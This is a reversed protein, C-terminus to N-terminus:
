VPRLFLLISCAHAPQISLGAHRAPSPCSSQPHGSTQMKMDTQFRHSCPPHSPRHFRLSSPLPQYAAPYASSGRNKYSRHSPQVPPAPVRVEPAQAQGHHSPSLHHVAYSPAAQSVAKPSAPSRAKLHASSSDRHPAYRIASATNAPIHSHM